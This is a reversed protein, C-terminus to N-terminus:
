VQLGVIVDDFTAADQIVSVLVVRAPSLERWRKRSVLMAQHQVLIPTGNRKRILSYPVRPYSHLSPGTVGFIRSRIPVALAATSKPPWPSRLTESHDYDCRLRDLPYRASGPKQSRNRHNFQPQRVLQGDVAGTCIGTRRQRLHSFTLELGM